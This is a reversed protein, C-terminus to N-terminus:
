KRSVNSITFLSSLRIVAANYFGMLFRDEKTEELNLYKDVMAHRTLTFEIDQKFYLEIYAEWSERLGRKIHEFYTPFFDYVGVYGKEDIYVDRIDREGETKYVIETVRGLASTIYICLDDLWKDLRNIKKILSFIDAGLMRNDDYMYPKVCIIRVGIDYFKKAVNEIYHYSRKEAIIEIEVNIQQLPTGALFSQYAKELYFVPALVHDEQQIILGASEVNNKQNHTLECQYSGQTKLEQRVAQLLHEQFESYTLKNEM